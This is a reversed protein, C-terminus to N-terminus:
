VKVGIALLERRWQKELQPRNVTWNEMGVSTAGENCIGEVAAAFDGFRLLQGTTVTLRLVKRNCSLEVEFRGGAATPRM